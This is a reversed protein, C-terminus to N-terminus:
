SPAEARDTSFVITGEDFKGHENGWGEFGPRTERSFLDARRFARPTHSLVLGYFEDPKRSHERAVGDFTSPFPKHQPNGVTCVLIPEHMTRVRYGTGVRAKGSPYRKLWVIESIPKFGWARAVDQAQGTAVAWGTTWLLLLCDGRALEHVPLAKIAELPMVSYHPDAGKKTGADSYNEFDWPPDAVIVDYGFMALTGFQWAAM